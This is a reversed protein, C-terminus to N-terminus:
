GKAQRFAAAPSLRAAQKAPGYATLLMFFLLLGLNELAHGLTPMFFIRRDVMVMNLPNEIGFQHLTILKMVLFGALMGVAWGLLALYVAEWLFMARIQARQVGVARMTGIEQTRERITMRLANLVGVMIITLLVCAVILAALNLAGEMAVVTSAMEYMTAMDVIPQVQPAKMIDQMKKQYGKTDASRKLLMWEPALWPQALSKLEAPLALMKPLQYNYAKFFTDNDVWVTQPSVGAPFKAIAVVKFRLDAVAANFKAPYKLSLEDGVRLKLAQALRQDLVGGKTEPTWQPDSIGLWSRAAAADSDINWAVANLQATGYQGQILAPLPLMKQWLRDAQAASTKPYKLRVRLAGTEYPRYGVIQKFTAKPVFIAWDMWVNQSKMIGVVKLTATNAQGSVNTFRLNITDSVKVKLVKAKQTSLLVPLYGGPQQYDAFSGQDLMFSETFKQDADAGVLYVYDGQGNGVARCLTGMSEEIKEIDTVNARLLDEFRQKDRIIPTMFRGQEFVNIQIHGCMYIVIRNLITDTLGNTFAMAVTLVMVGFAVAAGLMMNRRRQRIFNRFALFMISKM